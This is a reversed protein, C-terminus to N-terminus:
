VLNRLERLQELLDFITPREQPDFAWCSEMIPIWAREMRSAGSQSWRPDVFPTHGQLVRQMSDESDPQDYFPYLGTLITYLQLGMVFVDAQETVPGVWYEEPSRQIGGYVMEFPCYDGEDQNYALALVNNVDNLVLEGNLLLWQQPQIDDHVLCGNAFGHLEAISETMAIAWELKQRDSVRNVRPPNQEHRDPQEQLWQELQTQTLFGPESSSYEDLDPILQREMSEALPVAVSGGCHGYLPAFRPSTSMWDGLVLAEKGIADYDRPVFDLDLRMRKWVIDNTAFVDRYYGTGLYRTSSSIEEQEHLNNCVPHYVKSWAPLMCGHEDLSQDEWADYKPLLHADDISQLFDHRHEEYSDARISRPFKRSIRIGGHDAHRFHRQSDQMPSLHVSKPGCNEVSPSKSASIREPPGLRIPEQLPSCVLNAIVVLLAVAWIYGHYEELSRKDTSKNSKFVNEHPIPPVQVAQRTTTRQRMSM